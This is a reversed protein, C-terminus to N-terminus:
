VISKELYFEPCKRIKSEFALQMSASPYFSRVLEINFAIIAKRKDHLEPTWKGEPLIVHRKDIVRGNSIVEIFM